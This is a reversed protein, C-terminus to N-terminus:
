HPAQGATRPEVPLKPSVAAAPELRWRWYQEVLKYYIQYDTIYNLLFTATRIIKGLEILSFIGVVQWNYYNRGYMFAVTKCIVSM